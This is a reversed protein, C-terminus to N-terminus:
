NPEQFVTPRPPPSIRKWTVSWESGDGLRIAEGYVGSVKQHPIMGFRSTPQDLRKQLEASLADNKEVLELERQAGQKSTWAIGGFFFAACLMAALLTRLSFQFRKPM